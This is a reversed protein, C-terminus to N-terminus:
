RRKSQPAFSLRRAPPIKDLEVGEWAKRSATIPEGKGRVVATGTVTVDDPIVLVGFTHNSV